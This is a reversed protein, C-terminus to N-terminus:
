ETENITVWIEHAQCHNDYLQNTTTGDTTANELILFTQNIFSAVTNETVKIEVFKLNNDYDEYIVGTTQAVGTAYQTTKNEDGYSTFTYVVPEFDNPADWWGGHIPETTGSVELTTIRSDLASLRTELNDIFSSLYSLRVANPDEFTLITNSSRLKINSVYTTSM